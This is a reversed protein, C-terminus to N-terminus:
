TFLTYNGHQDAAPAPQIFLPNNEEINGIGPSVTHTQLPPLPKKQLAEIWEAEDESELWKKSLSTEMIAPVESQYPSVSEHAPRTIMIFEDVEESAEWLGAVYFVRRDNFFFYHPVQKKKAVQKWVFFGDMLILCRRSRLKKRYSPKTLLADLPLNFFKPSMARNNSWMSMLGWKQFSLTAPKESTIVPLSKTPAANYQAEYVDPIEMGLLLTLEDASPTISYRDIM